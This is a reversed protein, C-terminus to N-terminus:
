TSGEALTGSSLTCADRRLFILLLGPRRVTLADAGGRMVPRETEAAVAGGEVVAAVVDDRLLRRPGIGSKPGCLGVNWGSLSLLWSWPLALELILPADAGGTSLRCSLALLRPLMVREPPFRSRARVALPSRRLPKGEARWGDDELKREGLVELRELRREGLVELRREGEMELRREGLMLEMGRVFLLVSRAGVALLRARRCAVTLGETDGLGETEAEV